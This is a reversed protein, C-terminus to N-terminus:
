RILYPLLFIRNVDYTYRLLSAIFTILEIINIVAVLNAEESVFGLQITQSLGSINKSFKNRLKVTSFNKINIEHVKLAEM